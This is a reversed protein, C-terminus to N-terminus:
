HGHRTFTDFFAEANDSFQPRNVIVNNAIRGPCRDHQPLESTRAFSFQWKEIVPHLCAALVQFDNPRYYRSCPDGKSARTRQFDVKAFGAANKKRLVNKCEILIPASGKWRLTIDPKGEENVRRCETVASLKKLEAELHAEAVWGRVAMKLRMSEDILDFLASSPMALEKLLRHPVQHAVSTPSGLKDAALHREGPDRGKMAQELEILELIRNRRGGILIQTRFDETFEPTPRTRTKPPRRDREWAAWGNALIADVNETKFEVSRSMPSPNNMAPDAAVFIGRELDIGLFVTTVLGREDIAVDLVGKLEGGYKIQFRHEDAPRNTTLKSNARFAYALVGHREGSPSDFVIYFPARNSPSASVIRCSREELGDIIFKLLLGKEAASVSYTKWTFARAIGIASEPHSM